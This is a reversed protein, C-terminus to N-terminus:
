NGDREYLRQTKSRRTTNREGVILLDEFTGIYKTAYGAEECELNNYILLKNKEILAFMDANDSAWKVDLGSM